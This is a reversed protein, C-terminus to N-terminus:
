ESKINTGFERILSWFEYFFTWIENKYDLYDIYVISTTHRCKVFISITTAARLTAIHCSVSNKTLLSMIILSNLAVCIAQWQRHTQLNNGTYGICANRHELGKFCNYKLCGDHYKFHWGEFIISALGNASMLQCWSLFPDSPIDCSRPFPRFLSKWAPESPISIILQQILM